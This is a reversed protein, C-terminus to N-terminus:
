EDLNKPTWRAYDYGPHVLAADESPPLPVAHQAHWARLCGPSCFDGSQSPGECQQCGTAADIRDLIDRSQDPTVPPTGGAAFQRFLNVVDDPPPAGPSYGRVRLTGQRVDPGLRQAMRDGFGSVDVFQIDMSTRQDNITTTTVEEPQAPRPENEIDEVVPDTMSSAIESVMQRHGIMAQTETAYRDMYEDDISGFAMSEFILPPGDGYQHNLGLFVTSVDVSHDQNAPDTIRTRAVRRNAELEQAWAAINMDNCPTGDRRYYIPRM